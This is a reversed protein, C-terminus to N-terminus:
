RINRRKQAKKEHVDVTTWGGGESGEKSSEAGEFGKGTTKEEQALTSYDM